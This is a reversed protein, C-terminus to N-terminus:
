RDDSDDDGGNDEGNDEGNGDGDDVLVCGMGRTRGYISDVGPDLLRSHRLLRCHSTSLYLMDVRM